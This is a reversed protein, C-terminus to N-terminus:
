QFKKNLLRILSRIEEAVASSLEQFSEKGLEASAGRPDGLVGTKSIDKVIGHFLLIGVDRVLIDKMSGDAVAKEMQVLEPYLHLMWATEIKNAHYGEDIGFYTQSICAYQMMDYIPIIQYSPKKAQLAQCTLRITSSNGGHSCIVIINEFGCSGLSEIYDRIVLSLTEQSFTITGPFGMHHPSFGPRITPAVLADGLLEAVHCALATGLLEDTAIPLHPGHQETSGVSIIINKKGSNISAQIDPWSMSGILLNKDFKSM